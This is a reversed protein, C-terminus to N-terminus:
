GFMGSLIDQNALASGQMFPDNTKYDDLFSMPNLAQSLVQGVLQKKINSALTEKPTVQERPDLKYQTGRLFAELVDQTRQDVNSPLQPTPPVTSSGVSAAKGPATHLFRLEYPNGQADAINLSGFGMDPRYSGSGKYALPTGAGLGIDIGEHYTSAGATPANRKGFESTVPFNFKWDKGVQQVLPRKDAGVLVNQLLTKATRPDIKKGKQAGFQPIVRVDLHAGTTAFVDKSPDVVAGLPILGAM